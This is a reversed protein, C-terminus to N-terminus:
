KFDIFLFLFPSPVFIRTFFTFYSFFSVSFCQIMYENFARLAFIFALNQFLLSFFYLLFPIPFLLVPPLYLCSLFVLTLLHHAYFSPYLLSIGLRSKSFSSVSDSPVSFNYLQFCFCYFNPFQFVHPGYNDYFKLPMLYNM